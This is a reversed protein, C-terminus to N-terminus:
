GDKGRRDIYGFTNIRITLDAPASSLRYRIQSSLDTMWRFATGYEFSGSSLAGSAAGLMRNNQTPAVDPQEPSTIILNNANVPTNEIINVSANVQTRIGLPTQMTVLRAAIGPSTRTESNVHASWLCEDGIQTFALNTATGRRVSWIRRVNAFSHDAILNAATISTDFGAEVTGSVLGLFLHYWTDNTLTLSSSLGGTPAGPTGGAAWSNDIQKGIDATVDLDQLNDASRCNGVAIDIDNASDTTNISAELGTLHGIPLSLAGPTLIPTRAPSTMQFADAAADFLMVVTDGATVDGAVLPQTMKQIAKPGLGNLDATMAGTNTSAAVWAVIQGGSYNSPPPTLNITVANATGGPAANYILAGDQVQAITGYENRATGSGVNTHKFGGMPLDATATNLGSKRLCDTIGGAIDEDHNDHGGSVIKIGATRNQDWVNSGTRTGDTREFTQGVWPM